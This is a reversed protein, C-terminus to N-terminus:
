VCLSASMSRAALATSLPPNEYLPWRQVTRYRGPLTRGRNVHANRHGQQLTGYVFVLYTNM